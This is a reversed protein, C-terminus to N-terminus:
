PLISCETNLNYFCRKNRKFSAFYTFIVYPGNNLKVIKIVIIIIVILLLIILLM